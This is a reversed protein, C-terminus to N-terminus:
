TGGIMEKVLYSLLKQKTFGDAVSSAWPPKDVHPQVSMHELTQLPIEESLMKWPVDGFVLLKCVLFRCCARREIKTLCDYYERPTFGILVLDASEELSEVIAEGVLM